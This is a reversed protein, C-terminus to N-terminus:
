YVVGINEYEMYCEEEFCSLLLKFRKIEFINLMGFKQDKTLGKWLALTEEMRFSTMVKHM